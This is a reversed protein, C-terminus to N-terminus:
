GAAAELAGARPLLAVRWSLLPKGDKSYSASSPFHRYTDHYTHMALAIQRLNRASQTRQNLRLLREAAPVIGGLLDSIGKTREDLVLTLRDKEVTPTLLQAVRDYEPLFHRMEKLRGLAGYAEVWKARLATAAAADQSKIVLRLAPHPPLDIGVAAWSIGRTLISSPGNGIEKPLQPMVEEIVRSTYAPPILLVQAATDGAAAFGAAVEPRPAPKLTKLWDLIERRKALLLADGRREMVSNQFLAGLGKEGTGPALPVVTFVPEQFLPRGLTFVLYIDKGGAGAFQTLQGSLKAQLDALEEKMEPVLRGLFDFLPDVKIRTVDVHAVVATQPDLYPAITRARAAPDFKTEASAAASMLFLASFALCATPLRM